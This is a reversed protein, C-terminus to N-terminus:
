KQSTPRAYLTGALGCETCCFNYIGNPSWNRPICIANTNPVPCQCIAFVHDDESYNAIPEPKGYFVDNNEEKYSAPMEQNLASKLSKRRMESKDLGHPCEEGPRLDCPSYGDGCNGDLEECELPCDYLEDVANSSFLHRLPVSEYTQRALRKEREYEDVIEDITSTKLFELVTM